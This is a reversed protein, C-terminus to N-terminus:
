SSSIWMLIGAILVPFAVSNSIAGVMRLDLKNNLLCSSLFFIKKLSFLNTQSPSANCLSNSACTCLMVHDAAEFSYRDSTVFLDRLRVNYCNPHERIVTRNIHILDSVCGRMYGHRKRGGVKDNMRVTVCMDSCNTMKMDAGDFHQEDCRESFELPKRYLHSIYRFQDELYPSMCSYCQVRFAPELNVPAPDHVNALIFSVLKTFQFTMM